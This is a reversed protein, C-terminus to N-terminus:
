FTGEDPSNNEENILIDQDIYDQDEYNPAQPPAALICCPLVLLVACIATKKM